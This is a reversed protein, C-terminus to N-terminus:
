VARYKKAQPSFTFYDVANQVDTVDHGQQYLNVLDGCKINHLGVELILAKVAKRTEMYTKKM